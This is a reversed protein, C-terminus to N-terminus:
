KYWNLPVPLVKQDKNLIGSVVSFIVLLGLLIMAMQRIIKEYSKNFAEDWKIKLSM